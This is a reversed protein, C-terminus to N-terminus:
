LGCDAWLNRAPFSNGCQETETGEYPGLLLKPEIEHKFYFGVWNFYPINNRLCQCIKKLKDNNTDDSKM